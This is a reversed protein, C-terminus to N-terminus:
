KKRKRAIAKQVEKSLIAYAKPSIKIAKLTGRSIRDLVAQRSVKLLNSVETVSYFQKKQRM